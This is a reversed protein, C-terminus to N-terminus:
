SCSIPLSFKVFINSSFIINNKNEAFTFFILNEYIIKEMFYFQINVLLSTM